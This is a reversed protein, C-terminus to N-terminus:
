GRYRNVIPLRRDRGFAKTTVRPGLPSQRRKYEALDVLRVIRRVLDPPFGRAELEAATADGEVYAELLPDLIEYSPLSQDDRQDPRLEASPPKALVTEPIVPGGPLGNRHRCLDYVTLKYVDKIVAYAGATDGYLTSYGVALESKNGTTLVLWGHKNALAMLVVGRIRSQLNEETLDPALGAFSPALMGLLSEHAPEIAITRHDIGLRVALDVADAVSHDSSFRSPMLVGHVREPGLADAAIAATLSSDVGGSLGVAVDTFGSKRVYDGTALVLAEYLEALPALVPALVPPRGDAHVRPGAVAMVPLTSAGAARPAADLDVILVEEAFQAARAVVRGGADVVMSGGDFVLDDQGGVLNVYVIPCGVAAVRDRLMVEREALKGRHYPSGNINVILEAGGAGLQHVPGDEVWVDECISIGVRVGAVEYLRIPEDGPVFTRLEDFVEYNPLERKHYVGHVRGGACVAAANLPRGGGDVFGIVAVCDGTRLALKELAAVSDAVFGPKRVLDEVPYGTLAMEPFVALEAGAEEARALAAVIREANGDLDGVITDVQCLAVRIRPVRCSYLGSAGVPSPAGDGTTVVV